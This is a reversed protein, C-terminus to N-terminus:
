RHAPVDSAPEQSILKEQFYSADELLGLIQLCRRHLAVAHGPTFRCGPPTGM